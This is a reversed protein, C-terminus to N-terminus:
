WNRSGASSLSYKVIGPMLQPSAMWSPRSVSMWPAGRSGSAGPLTKGHMVATGMPQVHANQSIWRSWMAVSSAAPKEASAMMVPLQGGGEM